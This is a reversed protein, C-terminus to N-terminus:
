PIDTLSVDLLGYQRWGPADFHWWETDLVTFGEATMVEILSDRHQRSAKSGGSYDRHAAPTFDDYPTPMELERGQADVLTVDVAAGRNHRSGKAPDAVFAPDPMIEWMKRQVSLPRYGDFIKLGLGRRVLRDQVRSLRRAVSERLLCRATPYLPQGTFNASTAYRIDIMIRPDIDSVDVLPEDPHAASPEIPLRDPLPEFVYATGGRARLWVTEVDNRTYTLQGQEPSSAAPDNVTVNGDEDFGTLVLLHGETSAYPADALEGENARISMVLPQDNAIAREIQSWHSFRTLYGPVGYAYAAQVARPWNGYIDYTDDYIREAVDVTPQSVGRYDLVMAVSTPSCIRGSLEKREVRQSRYPVPLRRKWSTDPVTAEARRPVATIRGSTDSLCVAMRAIRLTAPPTGSNDSSEPCQTRVRYQVRDYREESVFYDVDIEGQDCEIRRDQPPVVTGWDSFYLYPSWTDDRRRGVRAEVSFGAGPPADINWSLVVENFLTDSVIVPSEFATATPPACALSVGSRGATDAGFDGPRQHTILKHEFPKATPPGCLYDDLAAAAQALYEAGKPHHVMGALLYVRRGHEIRATDLYWDRWTGGKRILSLDRGQLGAVFKGNGFELEPAAFIQKMKVCAASGILRGQELMLYYRLAQRVTAGHSHDYLPDGIRPKGTAYHKGYWLGGGHDKDYFRYRKSQLVEQVKEIGVIKGYKAALTNDSVKIMRGLERRVDDPMDTIMEPHTQMYALLICIKPVSAAYFMRDPDVMALRLDNLELVGLARDSDPIGLQEGLRRDIEELATQLEDDVPVDYGLRYEQLRSAQRWDLMPPKATPPAADRRLNLASMMAAPSVETANPSDRLTQRMITEAGPRLRSIKIGVCRKDKELYELIPQERVAPRASHLLNVTGDDGLAIMAAHGAWQSKKSGRIINVLDANRLESLIEPVREKPIYTNEIPEDPIDQGIGFRAFFRARRCIQNLPTAVSGEGLKATLDEFLFSNNRNWDAITFHNRTVMGIVGDRYRLRQLTALFSWWDSSLAMAYTHECFTVCDGKSLCYIPDPDHLEFPFEGLLYIEYPQGINKRGLSVIRGTLEPELQRVGRLYLDLEAEDFTYLQRALLENPVVQPPTSQREADGPSLSETQGTPRCGVLVATVLSVFVTLLTLRLRPDPVVGRLCQRRVSCVNM